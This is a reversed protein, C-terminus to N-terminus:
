DPNAEDYLDVLYNRRLFEMHLPHALERAQPHANGADRLKFFHEWDSVFGTMVLETKLSNPLVARAQQPTWPNNKYGSKFRKDPVKNDWQKLLDLYANEATTLTHLYIDTYVDNFKSGDENSIDEDLWPPKIYTVGQFKDKSYNCYRTSEQAFSMVRHRVFEHSVGRDCVFHVTVRKAHFETPECLYQLIDPIYEEALNEVIVRFNTTVYNHVRDDLPKIVVRSYPNSAFFPVLDYDGASNPMDLYVTGHELMAGHGSKVMRDVFGKASDETIKDESKYCVRGAREIQKYVGELGEEQDWIEFSPKILKM